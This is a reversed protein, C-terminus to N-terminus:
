PLNRTNANNRVLERWFETRQFRFQPRFRAAGRRSEERMLHLMALADRRKQAVHNAPLWRALRQLQTPSLRAATGRDLIDEWKREKFFLDKGIQLLAGAVRQSVIKQRSAKILTARIDVMATSLARYGQERPAHLVAVEDDDWLAGSRYQRYIAGVGVMGFEALEVARLAGMSAAGYVRTGRSLAWLIEKHWVSPTTEFQGDILGIASHRARAARYIDGEAAPPLWHFDKSKSEPDDGLTPGVFIVVSM